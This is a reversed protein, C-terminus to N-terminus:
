DAPEVRKVRVKVRTEGKRFAYHFGFALCKDPMKVAAESFRGIASPALLEDWKKAPQSMNWIKFAKGTKTEYAFSECPQGAPKPLPEVVYKDFREGSSLRYRHVVPPPGSVIAEALAEDAIQLYTEYQLPSMRLADGDNRFGAKSRGDEPLRTGFEIPLGLLDQMTREYERRTLRRFHTAQNKAIGARRFEQTLWGTMLERDEKKLAAEKAPPMDGFNLRDLVDRWHDGDNGKVFDPNLKDIRLKGKAQKPGHCGHCHKQFLPAVRAFPISEDARLTGMGAGLLCGAFAFLWRLLFRRLAVMKLIEVPPDLANFRTRTLSLCYPLRAAIELTM